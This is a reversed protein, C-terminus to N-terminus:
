ESAVINPSDLTGLSNHTATDVYVSLIQSVRDRIRRRLQKEEEQNAEDKKSEDNTATESTGVGTMIGASKAANSSDSVQLTNQLNSLWKFLTASSMLKEQTAAEHEVGQNKDALGGFGGTGCAGFFESWENVHDLSLGYISTGPSLEDAGDTDDITATMNTTAEKPFM